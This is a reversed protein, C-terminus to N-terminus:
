AAATRGMLRAWMGRRNTTAGADGSAGGLARMYLVSIILVCIFIVVSIASSYGINLENWTRYNYIAISETGSSGQTMTFIVDFVQFAALTRFILAVMLAPRLLPLTIRWFAQWGTAGDIRAAEYLDESITQLGALLLLAIFPTTKWVDTLIIAPIATTSSALWVIPTKIIHLSQLIGNIVGLQDNWMWQWMKASIVTPIAYPVLVAARMLGRGRFKRHMVLAFVMGLVTELVVTAVTFYATTGMDPWFFPDQTLLFSYNALGVFHTATPDDLHYHLLSYWLGQALPAIAVAIIMLVAPAVLLYGLARPEIGYRTSGIKARPRPGAAVVSM